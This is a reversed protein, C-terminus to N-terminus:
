KKLVRLIKEVLVAIGEESRSALRDALPPSYRLLTEQDIEHWIPLIAKEGYATERAVLGDLERQPWQKSLFKSSLIVLGYRCKALGEDIKRRLSDGMELVAEDFWVSVGEATLAKYLPRAIADKDESAHSLFLDYEHRVNQERSTKRVKPQPKAVPAEKPPAAPYGLSLGQDRELKSRRQELQDRVIRPLQRNWEDTHGRVMQLTSEIRGLRHEFDKRVLEPDPKEARYILVVKDESIEGPIPSNYPSTGYKFLPAEGKFPVAIRLATGKVYFPRSRDIFVRMPDRSVDIEVEENPLQVIGTQDLIPADLRFREVIEGTLEELPRRLIIDGPLENLAQQASQKQTEVVDHITAQEGFLYNNSM